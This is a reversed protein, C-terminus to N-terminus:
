IISIEELIEFGRRMKRQKEEFMLGTTEYHDTAVVESILKYGKETSRLVYPCLTGMLLWIEDGLQAEARCQISSGDDLIASVKSGGFNLRCKEFIGLRLAQVLLVTNQGGETSDSFRVPNISDAGIQASAGFCPLEELHGFPLFNSVTSSTWDPVWSPLQCAPPKIFRLAYSLITLDREFLIIKVATDILVRSLTNSRTYDPIINYSPHALGLQSFIKDRPDSAKSHRADLALVKFDLNCQIPGEGLMTKQLLLLRAADSSERTRHRRSTLARLEENTESRLSSTDSFSKHLHHYSHVLDSHCLSSLWSLETYDLAEQHYLFIATQSCAFEQRIWARSWWPCEILDYFANWGKIYDVMTVNHSQFTFQHVDRQPFWSLANPWPTEKEDTSLCIFTGQSNLYIDRMFAVQHSREFDNHQDICIQDIWLICDNKSHNTTSWYTLTERLARDLNAFVNFEFGQLIIPRTNKASGACYSITHYNGSIDTLSQPPLLSGHMVNSGPKKFVHVLRIEHEHYNLDHYSYQKLFHENTPTAFIEQSPPLDRTAMDEVETKPLGM